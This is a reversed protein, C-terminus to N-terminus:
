GFISGFGATASNEEREIVEAIKALEEQTAQAFSPVQKLKEALATAQTEDAKLFVIQKGGKLGAASSEKLMFGIKAFSVDAYPDAELVKKLAQLDKSDFLFAFAKLLFDGKIYKRAELKLFL